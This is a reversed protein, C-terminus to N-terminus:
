HTPTKRIPNLKGESLKLIRDGRRSLDPNHTAVVFTVGSNKALDSLLEHLREGNEEDLNGSPEDALILLPNNALARAVAVRQQEGGSLETPKHEFRGDLGVQTLVEKARAYAARTGTGRLLLPMAVNELATFEALLHHFQFVFGVHKNRLVAREDDDLKFIDQDGLTVQGKTPSDLGGLIHLLTSKGSGSPGVIVVVEGEHVELDVGKLVELSLDAGTRYEKWVDIATLHTQKKM